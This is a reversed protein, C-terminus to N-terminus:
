RSPEMLFALASQALDAIAANSNPPAMGNAQKGHQQVVTQLRSQCHQERVRDFTEQGPGGPMAALLGGLVQQLTEGSARPLLECLGYAAVYRDELYPICNLAIKGVPGGAAVLAVLSDSTHHDALRARDIADGRAAQRWLLSDSYPLTWTNPESFSLKAPPPPLEPRESDGGQRCAQGLLLLAFALRKVKKRLFLAYITSYEIFTLREWNGCKDARVVAGYM